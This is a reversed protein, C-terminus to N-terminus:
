PVAGDPHAQIAPVEDLLGLVGPPHESGATSLSDHLCGSLMGQKEAGPVWMKAHGAETATLTPARAARHPARQSESGGFRPSGEQENKQEKEEKGAELHRPKPADGYGHAIVDAFLAQLVEDSLHPQPQLMPPVFTVTM